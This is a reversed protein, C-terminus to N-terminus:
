TARTRSQLQLSVLCHSCPSSSYSDCDVQRIVAIPLICLMSPILCGQSSSETLLRAILSVMASGSLSYTGVMKFAM